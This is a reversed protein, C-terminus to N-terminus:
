WEVFIPVYEEESKVWMAQTCSLLFFFTDYLSDSTKASIIFNDLDILLISITESLAEASPAAGSRWVRLYVSWCELMSCGPWHSMKESLSNIFPVKALGWVAWLM